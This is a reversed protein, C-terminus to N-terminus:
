WGWVVERVQTWAGLDQHKRRIEMSGKGGYELETLHLKKVGIGNKLAYVM